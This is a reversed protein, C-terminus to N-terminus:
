YGMKLDQGQAALEALAKESEEEARAKFAALDAFRV